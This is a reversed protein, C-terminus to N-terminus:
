GLIRKAWAILSEIQEARRQYADERVLLEAGDTIPLRRWTAVEEPTLQTSRDPASESAVGEAFGVPLPPPEELRHSSTFGTRAQARLDATGVPQQQALPVYSALLGIMPSVNWVRFNCARMGRSAELEERLVIEGPRALLCGLVRAPQPALKVLQGERRLEGSRFDFEFLGFRCRHM